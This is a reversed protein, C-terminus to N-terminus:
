KWRWARAGGVVTGPHTSSLIIVTGILDIWWLLRRVRSIKVLKGPTGVVGCGWQTPWSMSFVFENFPWSASETLQHSPQWCHGILRSRRISGAVAHRVGTGSAPQQKFALWVTRSTPSLESSAFVFWNGWRVLLNRWLARLVVVNSIDFCHGKGFFQQSVSVQFVSVFRPRSQRLVLIVKLINKEFTDSVVAMFINKKWHRLFQILFINTNM